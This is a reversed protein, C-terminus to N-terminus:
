SSRTSIRPPPPPVARGLECGHERGLSFRTPRWTLVRGSFTDPPAPWSGFLRSAKADDGYVLYANHPLYSIVEVGTDAIAGYWDPRTPGVLQVLHTRKNEFREAASSRQARAELSSTDIAGANLLVFRYEDLLEIEGDRAAEAAIADDVEFLQYSQYDALLRGGKREIEAARRSDRVRLKREPASAAGESRAQFLTGEMQPSAFLFM